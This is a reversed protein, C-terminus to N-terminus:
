APHSRLYRAFVVLGNVMLYLLRDLGVAVFAAAPALHVAGAILAALIESIGLGAPTISAASGAITALTIPLAKIFPLAVGIAQFALFLRLALLPIGFARHLLSFSAVGKGAKWVLWSLTAVLGATGAVLLFLGAITSYPLIAFSAGVAAFAIWLIANAIVLAVSRMMGVGHAMLAGSRVIAGGPVPLAEALTAHCAILTAKGLPMRVGGSWAVIQLGIGSYLLSLPAMVLLLLALYSPRIDAVSLDLRGFSLWGGLLFLAAGAVLLPIRVARLKEGLTSLRKLFRDEFPVQPPKL